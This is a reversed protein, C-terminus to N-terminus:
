FPHPRHAGIAFTTRLLIRDVASADGAPLVRQYGRVFKSFESPFFTLYGSVANFGRGGVDPDELWDNRGGLYMRRSLQWRASLYAGTM